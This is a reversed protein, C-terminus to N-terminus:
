NTSQIHTTFPSPDFCLVNGICIFYLSRFLKAMRTVRHFLLCINQSCSNCGLGKRAELKDSFVCYMRASFLAPRPYLERNPVHIPIASAIIPKLDSVPRSWASLPSRPLSSFQRRAEQSPSVTSPLLRSAQCGHWPNGGSSGWSGFLPIALVHLLRCFHRAPTIFSFITYKQAEPPM